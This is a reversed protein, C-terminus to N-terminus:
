AVTGGEQDRDEFVIAQNPCHRSVPRNAGLTTPVCSANKSSAERAAPMVAGYPCSLICTYCGVCKKKDVTILGDRVSLAGPLAARSM